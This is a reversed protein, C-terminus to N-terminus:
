DNTRELLANIFWVIAVRQNYICLLVTNWIRLTFKHSKVNM